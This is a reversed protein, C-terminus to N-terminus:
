YNMILQSCGDKKQQADPKALCDLRGEYEQPLEQQLDRDSSALLVVAVAFFFFFFLLSEPCEEEGQQAKLDM